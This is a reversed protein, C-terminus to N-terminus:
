PGGISHHLDICGCRMLMGRNVRDATTAQYVHAGREVGPASDARNDTLPANRHNGKSIHAMKSPRPFGSRTASNAKKRAHIILSNPRNRLVAVFGESFLMRVSSRSSCLGCRQLGRLTQLLSDSAFVLM